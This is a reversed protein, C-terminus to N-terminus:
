SLYKDPRTCERGVARKAHRSNANLNNPNILVGFKGTTPLLERLIELRKAILTNSLFSVGTVNRGPRNFSTVLGFKVPDAGIVFVM